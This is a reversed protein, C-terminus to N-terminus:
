PPALHAIADENVTRIFVIAELVSSLISTFCTQFFVASPPFSMWDKYTKYADPNAHALGGYVFVNLVARNSPTEGNHSINVLNPHDLLENIASRASNFRDRLEQPLSAREYLKAINHLSTAENDQIFFRFTLVFADISEQTPGHAEASMSFTGNRRKEGKLKLSPPAAIISQLFTSQQLKLAKENFLELSAIDDQASVAEEGGNGSGM